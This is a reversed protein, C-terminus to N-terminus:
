PRATALGRARHRSPSSARGPRTLCSHDSASGLAENVSDNADFDPNAVLQAVQHKMIGLYDRTALRAQQAEVNLCSEVVSAQSPDRCDRGKRYISDQHTTHGVTEGDHGGHFELDKDRFGPAREIYAKVQVICWGREPDRVAHAASFSDQIVHSGQGILALARPRV